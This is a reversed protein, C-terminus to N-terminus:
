GASWCVCTVREQRAIRARDVDTPNALLVVSSGTVLPAAVCTALGLESVPNIDTLLRGGEELGIDCARTSAVDVLEAHSWSGSQTQVAEDTASVAVPALVVDAQGPVEVAFDFWGNPLPSAFAGGLSRLSCALVHDAAGPHEQLAASGVVRLAPTTGQRTSVVLGASWAALVVVGAQWSAPLNVVVDDGPEMGLDGSFLNVLKCVWNDATAVSLEVREGSNSDYFTVLPRGPDARLATALASVATTPMFNM